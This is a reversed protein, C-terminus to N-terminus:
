AREKERPTKIKENEGDVSLRMGGGAQLGCAFIVIGAPGNM